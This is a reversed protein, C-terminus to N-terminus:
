PGKPVSESLIKLIREADPGARHPPRDRTIRARYREAWGPRTAILDALARLEFAPQLGAAAFLVGLWLDDYHGRHM